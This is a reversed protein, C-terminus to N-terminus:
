RSTQQQPERPRNQSIMNSRSSCPVPRDMRDMYEWPRPAMTFMTSSGMKIKTSSMPTVPAATAVTM